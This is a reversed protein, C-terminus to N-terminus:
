NSRMDFAAYYAHLRAIEDAHQEKLWRMALDTRSSVGWKDFINTLHRKVTEESVELANAINATRWGDAVYIAVQQERATLASSTIKRMEVGV